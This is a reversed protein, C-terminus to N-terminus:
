HRGPGFALFQFFSLRQQFPEISAFAERAQRMIKPRRPKPPPDAKADAVKVTPKNVKSSIPPLPEASAIPRALAQRIERASAVQAELPSRAKTSQQMGASSAVVMVLAVGIGCVVTTAVVIYISLATKKPKAQSEGHGTGTYRPAEAV